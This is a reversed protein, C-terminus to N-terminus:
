PVQVPVTSELTVGDGLQGGRNNGWCSLTGDTKIGCSHEAGAGVRAWNTAIGVQGPRDARPAGCTLVFVFLKLSKADVDAPDGRRDARPGGDACSFGFPKRHTADANSPDEGIVLAHRRSPGRAAAM